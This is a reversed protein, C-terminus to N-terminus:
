SKCAYMWLKYTKRDPVGIREKRIEKAKGERGCLRYRAVFHAEAVVLDWVFKDLPNRLLLHEPDSGGRKVTVDVERGLSVNLTKVDQTLVTNPKLVHSTTTLGEAWQM